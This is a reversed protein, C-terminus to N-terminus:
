NGMGSISWNGSIDLLGKYAVAGINPAPTNPVVLITNQSEPRASGYFSYDNFNTANNFTWCGPYSQGECFLTLQLIIICGFLLAVM